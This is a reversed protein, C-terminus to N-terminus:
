PKGKIPPYKSLLLKGGRTSIFSNIFGSIALVNREMLAELSPTPSPFTKIEEGMGADVAADAFYYRTTKVSNGPSIYAGEQTSAKGGPKLEEAWRRYGDLLESHRVYHFGLGNRVNKLWSKMPNNKDLSMGVLEHWSRRSGLSM